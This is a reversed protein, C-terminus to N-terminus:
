AALLFYVSSGRKPNVAYELFVLYQRLNSPKSAMRLLLDCPPIFDVSFCILRMMTAAIMALMAAGVQAIGTPASLGDTESVTVFM